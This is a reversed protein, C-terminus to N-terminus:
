DFHREEKVVTEVVMFSIHTYFMRNSTDLKKSAKEAEERTKYFGREDFSDFDSFTDGDRLKEILVFVTDGVKFDLQGPKRPAYPTRFVFVEVSEFDADRTTFGDYPGDGGTHEEHTTKENIRCDTVLYKKEKKTKPM